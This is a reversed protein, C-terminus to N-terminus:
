CTLHIALAVRKEQRLENYLKCATHSSQAIVEIGANELAQEAQDSVKMRSYAGQGILLLDPRAIFVEKIDKVSLNHGSKRWWNTQIREPFIILDKTFVQGDVVLQGFRYSDIQPSSVASGDIM